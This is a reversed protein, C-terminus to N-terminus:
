SHCIDTLKIDRFKEGRRFIMPKYFLLVGKVRNSKLSYQVIDDM